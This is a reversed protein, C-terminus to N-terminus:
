LRGWTSKFRQTYKTGLPKNLSVGNAFITKFGGNSQPSLAVGFFEGVVQSSPFVAFKVREHSGTVYPELGTSQAVFQVPKVTRGINADAANTLLGCVVVGTPDFAAYAQSPNGSVWFNQRYDINGGDGGTVTFTGSLGESWDLNVNLTHKIKLELPESPSGNISLTIPVGSANRILERITLNQGAGPRYGFERINVPSTFTFFHVVTFKGRIVDNAEDAVVVNELESTFGGANDSTAVLAGSLAVDIFQPAATGDGLVCERRMASHAVSGQTFIVGLTGFQDLGSNTILNSCEGRELILGSKTRVEWAIRGSLGAHTHMKM